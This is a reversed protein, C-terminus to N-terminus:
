IRAEDREKIKVAMKDISRSAEVRGILDSIQGAKSGAGGSMIRDVEAKLGLHEAYTLMPSDPAPKAKRWPRTKDALLAGIDGGRDQAEDEAISLALELDPLDRHLTSVRDKLRLYVSTDVLFVYERDKSIPLFWHGAKTKRWVKSSRTVIPDFQTADVKGTWHRAQDELDKGIDWQDEMVTLPGEAKRDLPRDSLDAVSGFDDTADAVFLLLCDQDQVPIGPVPRLGRGGMQIVLSRSRTARGIVVCAIEPYDFGETLVMANVCVLYKGARWDKIRQRREQLTMHPAGAIWTAKDGFAEALRQASKVLPMFAVTIRDSALKQWEKVILEPAFSDVLFADLDEVDAPIRASIELRYGIPQVLYGKRVAWSIDRSFVVNQWVTGLGQGDGRELTATFGLAPILAPCECGWGGWTPDDPKAYSCQCEVKFAGYHRLIAQYSNAVAHHCEDVIVLGVDQIAARRAPNALTAVSAVIIDAETEDQEAKVIGVSHHVLACRAALDNVLEDTHVLILVRVGSSAARHAIITGKGTGTPLVIALRTEDPVDRRHAAEAALAQIQYDRLIM